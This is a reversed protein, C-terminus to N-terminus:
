LKSQHSKKRIFYMFAFFAIAAVPIMITFMYLSAMTLGIAFLGLLVGIFLFTPEIYVGALYTALSLLILVQLSAEFRGMIGLEVIISVIFVSLILGLWHLLEHWITVVSDKWKHHRLYFSMGLSLLAFIVSIIRWFVWAEDKKVDTFIMGIFVLVFMSIGVIFRVRWPHHAPFWPPSKKEVTENELDM